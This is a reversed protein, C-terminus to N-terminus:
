HTISVRVLINPSQAQIVELLFYQDKLLVLTLKFTSYFPLFLSKRRIFHWACAKFQESGASKPGFDNQKTVTVHCINHARSTIESSKGWMGAVKIWTFELEWGGKRFSVAKEYNNFNGTKCLWFPFGLIKITSFITSIWKLNKFKRSDLYLQSNSCKTELITDPRIKLCMFDCSNPSSGLM